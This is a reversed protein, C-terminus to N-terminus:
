TLFFEKCSSYQLKYKNDKSLLTKRYNERFINTIYLSMFIIGLCPAVGVILCCIINAHFKLIKVLPLVLFFNISMKRTCSVGGVYLYSIPINVNNHINM